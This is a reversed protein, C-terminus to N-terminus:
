AATDIQVFAKPKIVGFAARLECLIALLNRVFFDAHSDTMSVTAQQRDWLVAKSWNGLYGYGASLNYSEIVPVRHLLMQHPLYPAATFLALEVSEWDDPALVFATPREHGNVALNTIAKRTTKWIDTGFAQTLINATGAIGQLEPSSGSGSLVQSELKAMVADRLEQDIIGRLQSADAIARKTVPVWVAITEVPATVKVLGLTGEPKYGGAVNPTVVSTYVLPDGAGTTVVTPAASSTAEAVPAAQTVQATQRVYEILDSSTKRKSILDLISLPARGMPEYIGSIDSQVFAGGLTDSLGTVLAKKEISLDVSFSPSTLGKASEPIYGKPAVHSMWDKFEDSSTFDRGFDGSSKAEADQQTRAGKAAAAEMEDIKKALAIDDYGQKADNVMNQSKNREDETMPRGDAIAKEVIERADGLLKGFKDNQM